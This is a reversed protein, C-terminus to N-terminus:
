RPENSPKNLAELARLRQDLEQTEIMRRRGDLMGSVAEGETPTLEGRAVGSVVSESAAVVGTLTKTSPLKFHLARQRQAPMLRDICLRMATPDGQFALQLLKKILRDGYSELTDQCM